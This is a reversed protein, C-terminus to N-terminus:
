AARLLTIPETHQPRQATFQALPIREAPFAWTHTCRKQYLVHDITIERESIGLLEALRSVRCERPAVHLTTRAYQHVPVARAVGESGDAVFYCEPHLLLTEAAEPSAFRSSAPWAVEQVPRELVAGSGVPLAHAMGLDVGLSARCLRRIGPASCHGALLWNGRVAPRCAPHWIVPTFLETLEFEGALQRSGCASKLCRGRGLALALIAYGNSVQPLLPPQVRGSLAASPIRCVVITRERLEAVYVPIPWEVPPRAMKRRRKLVGGRSSEITESVM